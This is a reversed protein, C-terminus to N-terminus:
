FLKDLLDGVKDKRDDEKSFEDNFQAKYQCISKFKNDSDSYKSPANGSAALHKQDSSSVDEM